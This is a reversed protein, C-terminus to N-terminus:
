AEPAPAAPEPGAETKLEPAPAPPPPPFLDEMLGPLFADIRLVTDQWLEQQLETRTEPTTPPILLGSANLVLLVNKLSEPIAEALQDRQGAKFFGRMVDIIKLWLAKTASNLSEPHAQLHLFSRCLLASARLKTETMGEPDRAAVPPKLLEEVMPLVVRDFIEISREDPAQAGLLIRQLHGLSAHRVDQCANASQRGLVSLLNLWISWHADQSLGLEAITKKLEALTTIAKVGREVIANSHLPPPARTQKQRKGAVSSGAAIAFEELSTILGSVNDSSVREPTSAIQILLDLATKSAETNVISGRLLSFVLAWETQSSVVAPHEQVLLALGAVIQETVTNFVIPPLGGLTDLSIYIQDRLSAKDAAIRCLRLLGLVAREVLLFSYNISSSLIVSLHEFVIPWTEEIHQSTQATISVMIELLFVSTPDYPLQNESPSSDVPTTPGAQTDDSSPKPKLSARKDALVQLAKMAAVLAPLELSMIQGYLEDLKCSTICDLACMTNEVDEDTPQSMINESGSGYPTLLYSSLASLLGTDSRSQAPTLAPGGQLPIMSVGGLFDEMQLMRTPLLSHFFLTEFMEFVQGWGERIANGNGNAINFLVVAALQGKVNTGFRVSLPSVTVDQGEVQVIPYITSRNLTPSGLLGTAQSLQGVVFDFVEPLKFYGALTACQRFGAIAREIVYDDDINIFAFAIAQIVPQWTLEFMEKDFASTNCVVYEGANKSRLLLEKWAYDFGLQGTHEEPMVIERKRLGDYIAQLYEPDFDTGDNVGKLNKQYDAITMRKRNQPNHLDTNLMIVSYSLVFVADESKIGPPGCAFFQKAFTETIRAIPQSEGPLRFSELLERMADAIPKGRFDFIGIFEKLLEPNDLHSIYEGLVKKDLRPCNKLFRALSKPDARKAPEKEVQAAEDSKDLAEELPDVLGNELMFAVGKKPKENFKQAATLVLLKRSKTYLLSDPTVDSNTWSGSAGPTETRTHMRDVYALLMDLALLRSAYQQQGGVGMLPYTSKTLFGILKEFIDECNVDCDYNAWLDVMFSPERSLLVLTELMVERLEPEVNGAVAGAKPTSLGSTKPTGPAPTSPRPGGTPTETGFGQRGASRGDYIPGVPELRAVLFSLFLERQLKLNPRAVEFLTAVAKLAALRLAPAETRALLFLHRCGRDALLAVLSPFRTLIHLSNEQDPVSSTSPLCTSLAASIIGLATLRITDTHQQDNPDLLNILVRLVEAVTPLGYPQPESEAEHPATAQVQDSITADAAPLPGTVTTPSLALRLEASAEEEDQRMRQEETVPDLKRLRGFIERIISQMNAEATKRLVESSRMQCCITLVKELMECAEVDGIRDGCPSCIFDRIVAIIRLLVAEDRGSESPEFVCRSLAGSLESLCPVISQDPIIVGNVFFNDIANLAATTIPGTSTPTSIVAIFPEVIELIPIEHVDQVDRIKRKLHEFGGILDVERRPGPSRPQRDLTGRRLGMSTALQADRRRQIGSNTAWRSNKRMVSTVSIIESYVIHAHTRGNWNSTAQEEM